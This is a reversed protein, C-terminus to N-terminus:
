NSDESVFGAEVTFIRKIDMMQIKGLLTLLHDGFSGFHHLPEDLLSCRRSEGSSVFTNLTRWAKRPGQIVM